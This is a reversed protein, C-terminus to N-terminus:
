KKSAKTSKSTQTPPPAANLYDIFDKADQPSSFSAAGATQTKAGAKPTGSPSPEPSTGGSPTPTPLVQAADACVALNGDDAQAPQLDGDEYHRVKYHDLDINYKKLRSKIDKPSYNIPEIDNANAENGFKVILNKWPTLTPTPTATKEGSQAWTYVGIGLVAVLVFFSVIKIGPLTKMVGTHVLSDTIVLGFDISRFPTARCDYVLRLNSCTDRDSSVSSRGRHRHLQVPM